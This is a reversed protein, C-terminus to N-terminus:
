GTSYVLDASTVVMASSQQIVQEFTEMWRDGPQLSDKDFWVQIGHSRLLTAFARAGDTDVGGHSLFV